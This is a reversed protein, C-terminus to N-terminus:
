TFALWLRAQWLPFRGLLHTGSQALSPTCRATNPRTGTGLLTLAQRLLPFIGFLGALSVLGAIFLFLGSFRASLSVPWLLDQFGIWLAVTANALLALALLPGSLCALGSWHRNLFTTQM